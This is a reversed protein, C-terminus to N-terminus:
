RISQILKKIVSKSIKDWEKWMYWMLEACNKPMRKEVNGKVIRWLNEILNLDLSNSLWTM